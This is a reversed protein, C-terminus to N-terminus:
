TENSMLSKSPSSSYRQTKALLAWKRLYGQNKWQVPDANAVGLKELRNVVELALNLSREHNLDRIDRPSVSIDNTVHDVDIQVVCKTPLARKVYEDIRTREQLLVEFRDRIIRNKHEIIKESQSKNSWTAAYQLLKDSERARVIITPGNSRLSRLARRVHDTGAPAGFHHWCYGIPPSDVLMGLYPVKFDDNAAPSMQPHEQAALYRTSILGYGLASAIHAAVDSFWSRVSLSLFGISWQPSTEPKAIAGGILPVSWRLGDPEEQNTYPWPWGKGSRDKINAVAGIAVLESGVDDLLKQAPNAVKQECQFLLRNAVHMPLKKPGEIGPHIGVSWGNSVAQVILPGLGCPKDREKTLRTHLNLNEQKLELLEACLTVIRSSSLQAADVLGLVSAFYWAPKNLANSLAPLIRLQPRRRGVRWDRIVSPDIWPWDDILRETLQKSNVGAQTMAVRLENGFNDWDKADGAVRSRSSENHTQEQPM